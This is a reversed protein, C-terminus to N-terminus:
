VPNCIVTKMECIDQLLCVIRPSVDVQEEGLTKKEATIKNINAFIDVFSNKLVDAKKKAELKHRTGLLLITPKSKPVRVNALTNFEREYEHGIIPILM